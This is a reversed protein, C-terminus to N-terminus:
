ERFFRRLRPTLYEVALIGFLVPWGLTAIWQFGGLVILAPGVFGVVFRGFVFGLIFPVILTWNRMLLRIM